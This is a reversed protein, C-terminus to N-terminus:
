AGGAAGVGQPRAPLLNCSLGLRLSQSPSSFPEEGTAHCCTRCQLCIMLCRVLLLHGLRLSGWPFATCKAGSGGAAWPQAFAWTFAAVKSAMGNVWRDMAQAPTGYALGYVLAMLVAGGIFNGITVPVENRWIFQGMPIVGRPNDYRHATVMAAAHLVPGRQAQQANVPM